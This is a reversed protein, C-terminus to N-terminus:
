GAAVTAVIRSRTVVNRWEDASHLLRRASMLLLPVTLAVIWTWSAVTALGAFCLGVLTTGLSLRLSYVTMVGPPAPADRPSRLEARHPHTVSLRMCLAVVRVVALLSCCALAALEATTPAQPTRVSGAAVAAVVTIGCVEAVVRAKSWFQLAPAHPLSALWVAGTGDLCFANVGFLLGAGAAVLGPLLILSGWGLGATAAVLGPLCALVLTGRRLSPSRWVSARDTALLEQRATRARPRRRLSRAELGHVALRPRRLAWSCARQGTLWAVATLILLTSTMVAWSWWDGTAGDLAAIVVWTTPSRDLVTGVTGTVVTALGAIGLAAVASGTVLRGAPRQRAGIVFWAFAQGCVTVLAIFALCSTLAAFGPRDPPVIYATIGLLGVVQTIWALNLPALVLSVHFHTRATVPFPALQEEPFLESGGGAVLPALFSLAAASLYATPALLTVEFNGRAPSLSAAAVAALTLLPVAVLLTAFAARAGRGRVMRWRLLILAHVQGASM